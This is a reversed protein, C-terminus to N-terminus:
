RQLTTANVTYGKHTNVEIMFFNTNIEQVSVIEKYNGPNKIRKHAAQVSIGCKDAYQKITMKKM